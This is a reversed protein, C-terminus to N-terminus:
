GRLRAAECQDPLWRWGPTWRGDAALRRQLGRHTEAALTASLWGSSHHVNWRLQVGERFALIQAEVVLNPLAALVEERADIADQDAWAILLDGEAYALELGLEHFWTRVLAQAECANLRAHATTARTEM